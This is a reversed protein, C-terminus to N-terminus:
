VPTFDPILLDGVFLSQLAGWLDLGQKRISSLYSRIVCFDEAAAPSRFCGSVKQQVKLMRLDREVLNNDFPVKFDYVFALIQREYTEFREALNRAKPKKPRGRKGRPWGDPPPPNARLARATLRQYLRQVQALKQPTLTTEGAVRAQAVLHKVSLLFTKFRTAWPQQENEAVATLDRLHHVNCLSHACQKYQRYASWNDHVATGQYHPLIGMADTAVRGRRTHPYYYTLNQTSATHLWHRDGGIYFGSEDCHLVPSTLLGAKIKELVPRLRQAARQIINQLTGPSLHLAFLDAFFQRSRDYPIFQVTKLYVALQQVRAGYQVPAVVTTPFLGATTQGCQACCLTEAQHETVLLRMPPLDHVQRKTVAIAAQAEPFAAQCHPCKEPRYVVIEDPQEQPELAKGPHGKQGGASKGSSRRQSYTRKKHKGKDRSAPWHSNRSNQSLLALLEKIQQQAASLEAELKRVQAKLQANEQELNM